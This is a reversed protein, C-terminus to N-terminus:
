AESEKEKSKDEDKAKSNGSKAKKKGVNVEPKDEGDGNSSSIRMPAASGDKPAPPIGAVIMGDPVFAPAEKSLGSSAGKSKDKASKGSDKKGASSLREQLEEDTPRKYAANEVEASLGANQSAKQEQKHVKQSKDNKQNRDNAKSNKQGKQAKQAPQSPAGAGLQMQTPGAMAGPPILPPPMGVTGPPLMAGPPVLPFHPRTMMAFSQAVRQEMTALRQFLPELNKQKPRGKLVTDVKQLQANVQDAHMPGIDEMQGRITDLVDKQHRMLDANHNHALITQHLEQKLMGLEKSWQQEISKLLQNVTNMEVEVKPTDNADLHVIMNDLMEDMKRIWTHVKSLERKVKVESDNKAQSIMQRVQEGITETIHNQLDPRQNELGTRSGQSQPWSDVQVDELGPPLGPPAAAAAGRGKGGQPPM